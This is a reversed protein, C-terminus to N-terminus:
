RRSLIEGALRRALTLAEEPTGVEGSTEAEGVLRLIEGIGPGEPIGLKELIDRGQILPPNQRKELQEWHLTLLTRATQTVSELAPPAPGTALEDALSLLLAEPVERGLDRLYRMRAAKTPRDQHALGFLRLHAAVVRQAAGRARRGLRLNGLVQRLRQGGQVEHGLFRRREGDLSLTAPKAVDHLLAACKLLALRPVGAELEEALHARLADPRPLDLAEPRVALEEAAEAARLSHELLDHTHYDGQDFDAWGAVFPFLTQLVGHRAM